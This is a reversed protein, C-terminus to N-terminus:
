RSQQLDNFVLLNVASKCRADSMFKDRDLPKKFQSSYILADMEDPVTDAVNQAVLKIWLWKLPGTVVLHNTLLLGKETEEVFHTDHMKAGFFTTCDTFERGKQVDTLVIKVASIGKPKLMFHNGVEFPGEMNCYDLDGHWQPWHNVDTWINWVEEKSVNECVKSHTRTWM